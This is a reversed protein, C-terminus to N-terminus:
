NENTMRKSIVFLIAGLVVFFGLVGYLSSMLGDTDFFHSSSGGSDISHISDVSHVTPDLEIVSNFFSINEKLGNSKVAYVVLEQQPSLAQIVYQDAQKMVAQSQSDKRDTTWFGSHVKLNPLYASKVSFANDQQALLPQLESVTPLRWDKQDAYSLKDTKLVADKWSLSEAKGQCSGSSWQQGLACSMWTLGTDPDTWVGNSFLTQNDKFAFDPNIQLLAM